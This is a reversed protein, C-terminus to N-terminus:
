SVSVICSNNHKSVALVLSYILINICGIYHVFIPGGVSSFLLQFFIIYGAIKLQKQPIQKSIINFLFFLIILFLFVGIWGFQGAIMPWFNDNLYQEEEENMGWVKNFGYKVYLPSYHIKAMNSGYSSYGAGFPFYDNATKIGNTLFLARPTVQDVFYYRIQSLAGVLSLACLIIMSKLSLTKVYNFIFILAVYTALLGLSKGRLTMFILFVAVLRMAIHRKGDYVMKIHLIALSVILISAYDGANSNVFQFTRLGYRIEGVMQTNLAISIFYFIFGLILYVKTIDYTIGVIKKIDCKWFLVSSYYLILFFKMLTFCDMMNASFSQQIGSTFSSIWGLILFLALVRYIARVYRSELLWDRKGARFLLCCLGFVSFLEDSYAFIVSIYGTLVSNFFLTIFLLLYTRESLSLRSAHPKKRVGFYAISM